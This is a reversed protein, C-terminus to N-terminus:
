RAAKRRRAAVLGAIGLGLLALSGPEPVPNPVTISGGSAGIIVNRGDAMSTGLVPLSGVNNFTLHFPGSSLDASTLGPFASAGAATLDIGQEGAVTTTVSPLLANLWGYSNAQSFLGGGSGLFANINAANSVLAAEEDFELGGTVNSSSSDFVLVGANGLGSTFFNNINAAGNISQLTWGLGGLGSLNFASAVADGAQTNDDSGIAYVVKNGNTVGPAINQLARQMFLWGDHNVGADVYGHDDADTGALIFPGAVASGSLILAAAAVLSRLSNTTFSM